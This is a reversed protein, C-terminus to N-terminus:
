SVSSQAVPPPASGLDQSFTPAADDFSFGGGSQDFFTRPAGTSADSRTSGSATGTVVRVVHQAALAFLAAFGAVSAITIRRKLHDVRALHRRRALTPDASSTSM